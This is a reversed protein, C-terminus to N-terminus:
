VNTNHFQDSTGLNAEITEKSGTRIRRRRCGHISSSYVLAKNYMSSHKCKSLNRKPSYSNNKPGIAQWSYKNCM